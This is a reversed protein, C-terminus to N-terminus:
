CSHYQSLALELPHPKRTKKIVVDHDGCVPNPLERVEVNEQGLYIAAKIATRREKDHRLGQM